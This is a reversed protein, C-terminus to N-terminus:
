WLHTKVQSPDWLIISTILMQIWFNYLLIKLKISEKKKVYEGMVQYNLVMENIALLVHLIWFDSMLSNKMYVFLHQLKDSSPDGRANVSTSVHECETKNINYLFGWFM